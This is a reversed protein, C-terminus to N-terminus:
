GGNSHDESRPPFTVRIDDAMANKKQRPKRAALIKKANELQLLVSKYNKRIYPRNLNHEMYIEDVTLTRGAFDNLLMDALDELPRSLQFLLGQRSTRKADFPNYEFSPVGQEARSSERAMIEKMIEYGLFHKSVFILHHSTRAGREDKFCFPLVFQPGIEKIAECLQEIIMMEREDPEMTALLERLEAAREEGFLAVIHEKVADNQLALNMNIRNYNFFFICDSGWDKLMSNLLRLSLGKYGWPDGFFLTPVFSTQEFVKVVDEGVEYNYVLPKYRLFQIGPLATIAKLLSEAHKKDKDNFVTVLRERIEPNRIAKELVLLPTSRTGDQYIGPGAFLDAYAIRQPKTPQRRLASVIVQAWADFYKAVIAAKVKSQDSSEDFFGGEASMEEREKSTGITIV